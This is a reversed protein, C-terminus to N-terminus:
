VNVFYLVVCLIGASCCLWVCKTAMSTSAQYSALGCICRHLSSQCAVVLLTATCSRCDYRGCCCAAFWASGRMGGPTREGKKVFRDVVAPAPQLIAGARSYIDALQVAVEPYYFWCCLGASVTTAHVAPEAVNSTSVTTPTMATTPM